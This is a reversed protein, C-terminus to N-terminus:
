SFDRPQLDEAALQMVAEEIALQELMGDVLALQRAEEFPLGVPAIGAEAGSRAAAGTSDLNKRYDKVLAMAEAVWKGAQSEEVVITLEDSIGELEPFILEAGKSESQRMFNWYAAGLVIAEKLGISFQRESGNTRQIQEGIM